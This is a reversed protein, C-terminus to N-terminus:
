RRKKAHITNPRSVESPVPNKMANTRVKKYPGVTTSGKEQTRVKPKIKIAIDQGLDNLFRFLRELSFGALKGTVLTSVKAQDIGLLAAARTQTLKKQKIIHYIQLALEAKALEVDPSAFGLDQFINESGIEFSPSTSRQTATKKKPTSNKKKEM